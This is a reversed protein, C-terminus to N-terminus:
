FKTRDGDMLRMLFKPTIEPSYLAHFGGRAEFPSITCILSDDVQLAYIGKIAYFGTHHQALLWCNGGMRDRDYLWKRQNPRWDLKLPADRQVKASDMDKRKLHECVKLEIWGHHGNYTFALDPIGSGFAPEVRDYRVGVIKDLGNKKIDAYMKQEPKM